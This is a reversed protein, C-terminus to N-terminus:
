YRRWQLSSSVGLTLDPSLCIVTIPAAAKPGLCTHEGLSVEKPRKIARSEWFNSLISAVHAHQDNFVVAIDGRIDAVVEFFLAVHHIEGSVAHGAQMQGHHM